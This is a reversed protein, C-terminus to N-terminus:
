CQVRLLGKSQELIGEGIEQQNNGGVGSVCQPTIHESHTACCNEKAMEKRRQWLWLMALKAVEFL